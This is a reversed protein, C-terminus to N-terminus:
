DDPDIGRETISHIACGERFKCYIKPDKCRLCERCQYVDYKACRYPTERNPHKKCRGM